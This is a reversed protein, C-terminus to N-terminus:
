EAPISEFFETNVTLLKPLNSRLTKFPILWVDKVTYTIINEVFDNSVIDADGTHILFMPEGALTYDDKITPLYRGTGLVSLVIDNIRRSNGIGWAVIRVTYDIDTVHEPYQIEKFTGDLQEEMKKVGFAGIDGKGSGKKTIIIRNSTVGSKADVNSPSFLECSFPLAKVAAEYAAKGQPNNPYLTTNAADPLLGEAVLALRLSEFLTRDIIERVTM